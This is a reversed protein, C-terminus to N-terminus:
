WLPKSAVAEDNDNLEVWVKKQSFYNKFWGLIIGDIEYNVLKSILIDHSMSDFAKSMDPM